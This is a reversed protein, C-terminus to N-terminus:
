KMESDMKILHNKEEESHSKHERRKTHRTPKKNPILCQFDEKIPGPYKQVGSLIKSRQGM